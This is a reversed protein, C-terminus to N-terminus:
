NRLTGEQDIRRLKKPDLGINPYLEMLAVSLSNKHYALVRSGGKRKIIDKQLIPYWHAPKLPDFLKDRAFEDFFAKRCIQNMFACLM